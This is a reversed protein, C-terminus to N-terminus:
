INLKKEFTFYIFILFFIFFQICDKKVSLTELTQWQNEVKIQIKLHNVQQIIKIYLM